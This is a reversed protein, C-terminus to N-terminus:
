RIRINCEPHGLQFGTKGNQVPLEPVGEIGARIDVSNPVINGKTDLGATWGFKAAASIGLNDGFGKSVGLELNGSMHVNGTYNYETQSIDAAIIGANFGMTTTQKYDNVKFQIFGLNYNAEWKEIRNKYYSSNEDLIKADFAAKGKMAAEYKAIAEELEAAYVKQLAEGKIIGSTCEFDAYGYEDFDRVYGTYFFGRINMDIDTMFDLFKLNTETELEDRVEPDSVLMIYKMIDNYMVSLADSYKQYYERAKDM